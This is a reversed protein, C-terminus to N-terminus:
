PACAREIVDGLDSGEPDFTEGVAWAAGADDLTVAEFGGYEDGEYSVRQWEGGIWRGALPIHAEYPQRISSEGVTWVESVTGVVDNLREWGRSNPFDSESWQKGDFHIVLPRDRGPGAGVAWVDAPSVVDAGHLSQNGPLELGFRQRTWEAGNWRLALPRHRDTYRGTFYGM